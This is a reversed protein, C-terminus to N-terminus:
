SVLLKILDAKDSVPQPLTYILGFKELGDNSNRVTNDTFRGQEMSILSSYVGERSVFGVAYSAKAGSLRFEKSNTKRLVKHSAEAIFADTVQLAKQRLNRLKTGADFWVDIFQAILGPRREIINAAAEFSILEDAATGDGLPPCLNNRVFDVNCQICKFDCDLEILMEFTHGKISLSSAHYDVELGKQLQLQQMFSEQVTSMRGSAIAIKRQFDLYQKLTKM